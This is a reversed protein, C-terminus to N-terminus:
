TIKFIKQKYFEGSVFEIRTKAIDFYDALVKIVEQNAKSQQPKAKVWVLFQDDNLRQIRNEKANTKVRVSIKYM